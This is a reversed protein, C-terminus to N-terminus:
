PQKFEDIWEVRERPIWIAKSAPYIGKLVVWQGQFRLSKARFESGAAHVEYEQNPSDGLDPFSPDARRQTTCCGALLGIIAFAMSTKLITM